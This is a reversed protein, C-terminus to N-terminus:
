SIGAANATVYASELLQVEHVCDRAQQQVLADIDEYSVYNATPILQRASKLSVLPVPPKEVRTKAGIDPLVGGGPLRLSSLTDPGSSAADTQREEMYADLQHRTARLLVALLLFASRRLQPLKPDKDIGAYVEREDRREREEENDDMMSRKENGHIDRGTVHATVTRKRMMPRRVSELKVLDSCMQVMEESAGSSALAIPAFEVCTGLISIFSSRLTASFIPNRVATLLPQVVLDISPIIAEGCYQLVQLLAEGLRLRKDTERQTLEQGYQLARTMSSETKEGGVYLAILPQLTSDRWHSTM